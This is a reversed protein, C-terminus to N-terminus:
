HTIPKNPWSLTICDYGVIQSLVWNSVIVVSYYKIAIFISDIGIQINEKGKM